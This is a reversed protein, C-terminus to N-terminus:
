GALKEGAAVNALMIKANGSQWSPGNTMRELEARSFQQLPLSVPDFACTLPGQVPRLTGNLIRCVEQGLSAGNERADAMSGRPYPNADGACGIMFMAQAGLQREEVYVQAFGAYDGCLNYNTQTLTTNHCAYGFLVAILKGEASDVRLVPVTRDVLGRPNVGLIVGKPTFERRNM